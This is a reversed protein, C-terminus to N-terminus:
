VNFGGKCDMCFLPQNLFPMSISDTEYIASFSYYALIHNWMSGTFVVSVCLNARVKERQTESSELEGQLRAITSSLEQRQESAERRDQKLIDM